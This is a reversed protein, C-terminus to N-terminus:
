TRTSTTTQSSSTRDTTAVPSDHRPIWIWFQCYHEPESEVLISGNMEIIRNYVFDLGVGMGGETTADAATTFGPQFILQHIQERSWNRTQNRTAIGLGAATAMLREPDLGSGDDRFGFIFYREDSCTWLDIRGDAPKNRQLRLEPEEIGHRMSNRALQVIMDTVTKRSRFPIQDAEFHEARFTARKGTRQALERILADVSSVIPHTSGLPGGPVSGNRPARADTLRAIVGNAEALHDHLTALELTIGLFDQGGISHKEALKKLRTEILHASNEFFRLKLLAANGKIAHMLRQIRRLRDRYHVSMSADDVAQPVAERLITDIVALEERTGALFDRVMGMDVHLISLMMELQRNTREEAAKLDRALNVSRTIDTVSAMVAAIAGNDIVRRFRFDLHRTEFLGGESPFNFEAEKLPNLTQILKEKVNPDFLIAMYDTTSELTKPPLATEFLSRFPVGALNPRMFITELAKSYRSGIVMNRDLLFLGDTVTNLIREMEAGAARVTGEAHQLAGLMENVSGGLDSLEDSGRTAIRASFDRSRGIALAQQSLRRLRSIVNVDLLLLTVLLSVAGAAALSFLFIRRTAQGKQYVDRPMEMRFILAPKGFLDDSRFYGAMVKENLFELHTAGLTTLAAQAVRFLPSAAAKEASEVSVPFRMVEGFRSILKEDVRRGFIISGVPQAKAEGDTIAGAAVLYTGAEGLQIVGSKRPKAEDPWPGPGVGVHPLLPSGSVLLELFAPPVKTGEIQHTTVIKSERDTYVVFEIDGNELMEQTLNAPAYDPKKGLIFEMSDTWQAWDSNFSALSNVNEQLVNRLREVAETAQAKELEDFSAIFTKSLIFYLAGVLVAFTGAVMLATKPRLKM